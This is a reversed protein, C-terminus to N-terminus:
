PLRVLFGYQFLSAIAYAGAFGFTLGLAINTVLARQTQEREWTFHIYFVTIYIATALAFPLTGVLLLAYIISYLAAFFLNRTSANGNTHGDDETSAEEHVEQEDAGKALADQKPAVRSTHFLLGACLMMASGLIMPVLGPISAPHIQRIELREMTYGGILMALGLAFLVLSTIRDATASNLTM